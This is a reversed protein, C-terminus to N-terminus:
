APSKTWWMYVDAIAGVVLDRKVYAGAAAAAVVCAVVVPVVPFPDVDVNCGVDMTPPAPAPSTAATIVVGTVASVAIPVISGYGNTGILGNTGTSGNTSTSGNVVSSVAYGVAVSVLVALASRAL